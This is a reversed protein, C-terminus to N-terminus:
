IFYFMYRWGYLTNSCDICKWVNSRVFKGIHEASRLIPAMLPVVCML